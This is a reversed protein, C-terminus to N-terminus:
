RASAAPGAEGALEPADEYFAVPQGQLPRRLLESVAGAFAPFRPDNALRLLDAARAQPLPQDPAPGGEFDQDDEDETRNDVV